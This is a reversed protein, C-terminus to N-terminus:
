VKVKRSTPAPLRRPGPSPAAPGAAPASHLRESLWSAAAPVGVLAVLVYPRPEVGLISLLQACLLVPAAFALLGAVFRLGLKIFVALGSVVILGAIVSLGLGHFFGALCGLNAGGTLQCHRTSLLTVGIIVLSIAAGVAATLYALAVRHRGTPQERLAWRALSPHVPSRMLM